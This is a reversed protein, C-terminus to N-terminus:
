FQGSPPWFSDEDENINKAYNKRRLSLFHRQSGECTFVTLLIIPLGAMLLDIHFQGEVPNVGIPLLWFPIRLQSFILATSIRFRCIALFNYRRKYSSLLARPLARPLPAIRKSLTAITGQRM